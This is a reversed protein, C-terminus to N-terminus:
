AASAPDPGLLSSRGATWSTSSTIASAPRSRWPSRPAGCPSRRGRRPARRRLRRGPRARALPGHHEDAVVHVDYFECAADPAGVRRMAEAYRGMPGVSTMEFLALHGLLAALLRRHLALHSMLNVTALTPAPALHLYRGYTPDLDLAVMSEAFLEAHARGPEGHGYEDMQIEVLAAKARGGLRPLAFSHPDAEKRQYLSRHVAFERLLDISAHELVYSSLSPGGSEEVLAGIADGAGDIAM